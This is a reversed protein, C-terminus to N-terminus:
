IDLEEKNLYDYLNNWDLANDDYMKFDFRELHDLVKKNSDAIWCMTSSDNIKKAKRTFICNHKDMVKRIDGKRIEERRDLVLKSILGAKVNLDSQKMVFPEDLKTDDVHNKIYKYIWLLPASINRTALFNQTETDPKDRKPSFDSIDYDLLYTFLKNMMEDNGIKNKHLDKWYEFHEKNAMEMNTEVIFFRRDTPSFVIPSYGNSLIFLRFNQPRNRSSIYKERIQLEDSTIFEKLDEIHKMGDKGQVENMGIILKNSVISNYPGFLNDMGKGRCLLDSGILGSIIDLLSDKGTGEIGKLVIAIKPNENPKQIIHALFSKIYKRIEDTKYVKNLYEDFWKVEDENYETRKSKFGKFLNFIESSTENVESYPLFSQQEFDKRKKDKIWATVFNELQGNENTIRVNQHDRVVHEYTMTEFSGDKLKKVFCGQTTIYSFTKEFKDKEYEYISPLEYDDDYEYPSEFPKLSWEIYYDKTIENLEEIDLEQRSVFGDYMPISCATPYVDLVSNLIRNEFYMFINSMKSSLNNKGRDKKPKFEENKLYDKSIIGKYKEVLKKKNNQIEELIVRITPATTKAPPLKDRNMMSLFDKKEIGADELLSEREDIYLKIMKCPLENTKCLYYLISPHANKMDYDYMGDRIVFDRHVKSLQQIGNEKVYARHSSYKYQREIVGINTNNDSDKMKILLDELINKLKKSLKNREFEDEVDNYQTLKFKDLSYLYEVNKKNFEESYKLKEIIEFMISNM